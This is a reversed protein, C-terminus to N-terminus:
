NYQEYVVRVRKGTNSPSLFIKAPKIDRPPSVRSDHIITNNIEALAFKNKQNIDSLSVINSNSVLSKKWRFLDLVTERLIELELLSKIIVIKGVGHAIYKGNIKFLQSIYANRGAFDLYVVSISEDLTLLHIESLICANIRLNKFQQCLLTIYTADSKKFEISCLEIDRGDQESTVILDLRRGYTIDYENMIQMRRSAECVNEGEKIFLNTKKFLM